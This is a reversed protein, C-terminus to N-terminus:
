ATPRFQLQRHLKATKRSPRHNNKFSEGFTSISPEVKPCFKSFFNGFSARVAPRSRSLTILLWRATCSSLMCCGVLLIDFIFNLNRFNWVSKWKYLDFLGFCMKQPWLLLFWYNHIAFLRLVLPLYANFFSWTSLTQCKVIKLKCLWILGWFRSKRFKGLAFKSFERFYNRVQRSSNEATSFSNKNCCPPRSTSPSCM